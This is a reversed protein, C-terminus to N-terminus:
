RVRAAAALLRCAPAQPALLLLANEEAQARMTIPRDHDIIVQEALPLDAQLLAQTANEM